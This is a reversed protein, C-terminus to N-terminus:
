NRPPNRSSPTAQAHIAHIAHTRACARAAAHARASRAHVGDRTLRQRGVLAERARVLEDCLAGVSMGEEAARPAPGGRAPDRWIWAKQPSVPAPTDPSPSSMAAPSRPPTEPRQQARKLEHENSAVAPQASQGALELGPAGRTTSAAIAQERSTTISDGTSEEHSIGDRNFQDRMADLEANCRASEAIAADRAESVERLQSTVEDLRASMESAITDAEASHTDRTGGGRKLADLQARLEANASEAADRESAVVLERRAWGTLTSSIAHPTHVLAGDAGQAVRSNVKSGAAVMSSAIKVAFASDKQPVLELAHRYFTIAADAPTKAQLKSHALDQGIANLIRATAQDNNLCPPEAVAIAANAATPATSAPGAAPAEAVAPATAVLQRLTTVSNSARLSRVSAAKDPPPRASSSM